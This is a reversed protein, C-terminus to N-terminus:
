HLRTSLLMRAQAKRARQILSEETLSKLEAEEASTLNGAQNKELLHEM